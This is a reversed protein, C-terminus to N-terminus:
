QSLLIEFEIQIEDKVKVTGGALSIPKIGFQSQRLKASGRYNGNEGSVDFAIPRTQGHLELTGRVTWHGGAKKEVASSQFRIESYRDTDLVEPGLMTKQIEARDKDSIKPDLVQLKASEVRLEVSPNASDEVAGAAIPALIEHNHAFVSFLGTKYAYVKMVSRQVDIARKEARSPSPVGVGLLWLGATVIAWKPSVVVSM